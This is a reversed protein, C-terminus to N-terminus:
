LMEFFTSNAHLILEKANTAIPVTTPDTVSFGITRPVIDPTTIM